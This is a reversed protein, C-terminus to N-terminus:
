IEEKNELENVLREIEKERKIMANVKDRAATLRTNAEDVQHSECHNFFNEAARLEICAQRFKANKQIVKELFSM